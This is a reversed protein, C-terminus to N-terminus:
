ASPKGKARRRQEIKRLLRIVWEPAGDARLQGLTRERLEEPTWWPTELTREAAAALGEGDPLRRAFAAAQGVCAAEIRARLNERYAIGAQDIRGHTAEHVITLAIHEVSQSHIARWSLVCMALLPEYHNGESETVVVRRLDRRIRRLRKPDHQEILELARRVKAFYLARFSEDAEAYVSIGCIRARSSWHKLRIKWWGRRLRAARPLDPEISRKRRLWV